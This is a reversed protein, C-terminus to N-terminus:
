SAAPSGLLEFSTTHQEAGFGIRNEYWSVVIVRQPIVRWITPGASMAISNTRASQLADLALHPIRLGKSQDSSGKSRPGGRHYDLNSKLRSLAIVGRM